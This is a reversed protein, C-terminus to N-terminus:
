RARYVTEPLPEERNARRESSGEAFDAQVGDGSLPESEFILGGDFHGITGDFDDGLPM